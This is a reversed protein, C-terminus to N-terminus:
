RAEGGMYGVICDHTIITIYRTVTYQIAMVTKYLTAPLKRMKQLLALPCMFCTMMPAAHCGPALTKCAVHLLTHVVASSALLSLLSSHCM